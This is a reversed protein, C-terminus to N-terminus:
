AIAKRMLLIFRSEFIRFPPCLNMLGELCQSLSFLIYGPMVPNRKELQRLVYNIIGRNSKMTWLSSQRKELIFGRAQLAKILKSPQIAPHIKVADKWHREPTIYLRYFKRPDQLIMKFNFFRPTRFMWGSPTSISLYGGDKICRFIIDLFQTYTEVHELTESSIVIDFPGLAVSEEYRGAIFCCNETTKRKSEKISQINSDLGIFEANPFLCSLQYILDGTGCGIDLLRFAADRKKVMFVNLLHKELIFSGLFNGLREFPSEKSLISKQLELYEDIQRDQTEHWNTM